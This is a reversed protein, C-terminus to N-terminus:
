NLLVHLSRQHNGESDSCSIRKPRQYDKLLKDVVHQPVLDHLLSTKPSPIHGNVGIAWDFSEERTQCTLDEHSQSASIDEHLAVKEEAPEQTFKRLSLLLGEYIATLILLPVFWSTSNTIKVLLGGGVAVVALGIPPTHIYGSM